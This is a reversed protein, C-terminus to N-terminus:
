LVGKIEAELKRVEAPGDSRFVIRGRRNVIIETGLNVLSYSEITTGNVDQAWVVDGAGSSKWFRTWDELSARPEVNIAIVRLGSAGYEQQLKGLEPAELACSACGPYGFYLLLPQGRLDSLRVQGDSTVLTVDSALSASAGSAAGGAGTAFLSFAVVAAIAVVMGGAIWLGKRSPRSKAPRSVAERKDERKRNM